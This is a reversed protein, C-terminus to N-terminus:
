DRHIADDLIGPAKVGDAVGEEPNTFEFDDEDMAQTESVHDPLDEGSTVGVPLSSSSSAMAAKGKRRTETLEKFEVGPLILLSSIASM